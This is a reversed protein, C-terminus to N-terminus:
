LPGVRPWGPPASSRLEMPAGPALEPSLCSSSRRLGTRDCPPCCAAPSTPSCRGREIPVKWSAINPTPAVIPVPM